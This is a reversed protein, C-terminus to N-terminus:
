KYNRKIKYVSDITQFTVSDITFHFGLEFLGESSMRSTSDLLPKSIEKYNYFANQFYSKSFQYNGPSNHNALSAQKLFIIRKMDSTSTLVKTLVITSDTISTISFIGGFNTRVEDERNLQHKIYRHNIISWNGSASRYNFTGDPHYTLFYGRLTVITEGRNYTELKEVRWTQALLQKRKSTLKIADDNALEFTGKQGFCIACLL